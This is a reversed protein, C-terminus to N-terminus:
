ELDNQERARANARVCSVQRSTHARYYISESVRARARVCARVRLHRTRLRQWFGRSKQGRDITCKSPANYHRLLTLKRARTSM